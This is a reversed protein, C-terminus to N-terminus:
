KPIGANGEQFMKMFIIIDDSSPASRFSVIHKSKKKKRKM